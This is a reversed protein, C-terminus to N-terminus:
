NKGDNSIRLNLYYLIAMKFWYGTSTECNNFDLVYLYQGAASLLNTKALGLLEFVKNNGPSVPEAYIKAICKNDLPLFGAIHKAFVALYVRVILPYFVEPRIYLGQFLILNTEENTIMDETIDFELCKGKSHSAGNTDHLPIVFFYGEEKKNVIFFMVCKPNKNVWETFKRNRLSKSILLGYCEEALETLLYMAAFLSLLDMEIPRLNCNLSVSSFTSEQSINNLETKSEVVRKIYILLLRFYDGKRNLFYLPIQIILLLTALAVSMCEIINYTINYTEIYHEVSDFKGVIAKSLAILISIITAIALIVRNRYEYLKLKKHIGFFFQFYWRYKNITHSHRISSKGYLSKGAVLNLWDAYNDFKAEM